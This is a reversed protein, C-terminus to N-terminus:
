QDGRMDRDARRLEFCLCLTSRESRAMPCYPHHPCEAPELRSQEARAIVESDPFSM